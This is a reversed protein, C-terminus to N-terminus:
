GREKSKSRSNAITIHNSKNKSIDEEIDGEEEEEIRTNM